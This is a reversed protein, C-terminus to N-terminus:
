LDLRLQTPVSPETYCDRNKQLWDKLPFNPKHGVIRYGRKKRRECIKVLERQMSEADNFYEVKLKNARGGNYFGSLIKERSSIRGWLSSLIYRTKIAPDPDFKVNIFYFKKHSESPIYCEFSIYSYFEKNVESNLDVNSREKAVWCIFERSGAMVDLFDIEKLDFWRVDAIKGETPIFSEPKSILKCEYCYIIVHLIHNEYERLTIYPFPIAIPNDVRCGTEELVERMTTTIPSEGFEVKGGPLEWMEDIDPQRKEKRKTLLVRGKDVVCAIAINIQKKEKSRM